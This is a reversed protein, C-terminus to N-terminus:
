EEPHVAQEHEAAHQMASLDLFAYEWTLLGHLLAPRTAHNYIVYRYRRTQASFRAHFEEDVQKAWLVCVSDPLYSNVGMVWAKLERHNDCDFHVIQETAHVGTDTRGAAQVYTQANAVKSVAHELAQQVTNASAQRQWGYFHSGNYEVGLAIRMIIFSHNLGLILELM